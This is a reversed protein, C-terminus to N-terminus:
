FHARLQTLNLVWPLKFRRTVVASVSIPYNRKKWCSSSFTVKTMLNWSSIFVKIPILSHFLKRVTQCPKTSTSVSWTSATISGTGGPRWGVNSSAFAFSPRRGRQRCERRRRGSRRQPWLLLQEDESKRELQPHQSLSSSIDKTTPNRLKHLHLHLQICSAAPSILSERKSTKNHRCVWVSLSFYVDISIVM